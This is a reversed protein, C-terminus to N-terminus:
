DMVIVVVFKIMTIIIIVSWHFTTILNIFSSVTMYLSVFLYFSVFFSM